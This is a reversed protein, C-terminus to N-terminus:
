ARRIRAVLALVAIALWGGILLMGGTPAAKTFLAADFFARRVMDGAFLLLGLSIMLSPLAPWALRIQAGPLSLAFLLPAHALCMTAAARVFDSAEVHAAAASLAVGSAGALGALIAVWFHSNPTTETSSRRM